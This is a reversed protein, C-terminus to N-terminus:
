MPWECDGGGNGADALALGFSVACLVLPINGGGEGYAASITPAVSLPGNYRADQGHGDFLNIASDKEHMMKAMM